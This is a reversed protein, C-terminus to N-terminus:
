TAAPMKEAPRLGVTRASVRRMTTISLSPRPMRRTSSDRGGRFRCVPRARFPDEGPLGGRRCLRSRRPFRQRLRLGGRAARGAFRRAFPNERLRAPRVAAVGERMTRVGTWACAASLRGLRDFLGYKLVGGSTRGAAATRHASTTRSGFPLPVVIRGKRDAHGYKLALPDNASVARGVVSPSDAFSGVFGCERRLREAVKVVVASRRARM